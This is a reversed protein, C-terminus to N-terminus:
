KKTFIREPYIIFKVIYIPANFTSKLVSGKNWLNRYGIGVGAGLWPVIKYNVQGSVENLVLRVNVDSVIEDNIEKSFRPNGFGIQETVFCEWKLNKYIILDNFVSIYGFNIKNTETIQVKKNFYEITVPNAIFSIGLGIRTINRYQMGVKAGFITSNKDQISSFRNDLQFSFKWKRVLTDQSYTSYTIVFFLIFFFLKVKLM